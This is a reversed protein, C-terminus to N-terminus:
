LPLHLFGSRSRVLTERLEDFGSKLQVQEEPTIPRNNLPTCWNASRQYITLSAVEDAIAPILQVGSSGTGVVAVRKGAFDVPEDPWLGTHVSVGKFDERGAVEPFYPM